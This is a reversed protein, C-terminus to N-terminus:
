RRPAQEHACRSGRGGDPECVPVHRHLRHPRLRESPLERRAPIRSGEGRWPRAARGGDSGPRPFTTRGGIGGNMFLRGLACLDRADSFIGAHGAVGSFYYHSNGDDCEGRIPKGVDRWGDFVLGLDRVMGMEIRNGFETAVAKTPDAQYSSRTLGLPTFVIDKMAAALTMGSVSEIVKGLLMFNLDSYIVEHRPPHAALVRELVSDFPEPRRTYFPFWYHIGSSHTLLSEIDTHRLPEALAQKEFGLVPSVQSDLRLKGLTILRLVAATTFIKSLSAIDFVHTTTMPVREQETLLANGWSGEFLLEGGREIRIVAGSFFGEALHRETLRGLVGGLSSAAKVAREQWCNENQVMRLSSRANERSFRGKVM